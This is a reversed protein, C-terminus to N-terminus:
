LKQKVDQKIREMVEELGFPKPIFGDVGLGATDEVSLEAGSSFYFLGQYGMEKVKKFFEDGRIKPMYFDSIIVEIPISRDELTKLAETPHCSCFFKFGNESFVEECVEIIDENDDVFLLNISRNM